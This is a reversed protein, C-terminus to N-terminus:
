PAGGLLRALEGAPLDEYAEATVRRPGARRAVVPDRLYVVLVTVPDEARGPYVLGIQEYDILKERCDAVLRATALAVTLRADRARQVLERGLYAATGLDSALIRERLDNALLPEPATALWLVQHTIGVMGIGVAFSTVFLGLVAATWRARWPEAGRAAALWRLFAHVSAALVVLSVAASVAGATSVHVSERTRALFPWWGAVLAWLAEFCPAALPHFLLGLALWLALLGGLMSALQSM